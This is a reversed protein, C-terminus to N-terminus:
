NIRVDWEPSNLLDGLTKPNSQARAWKAFTVYDVAEVVIPMFGHNVGCLESCQGYFVGRRKIFVETQNLRGPIADLKVGLSPVAWSHIVDTSTVLLRIHTNIPLFLRKDVELLRLGGTPLDEENVMYSDFKVSPSIVSVSNRITEGYTLFEFLWFFCPGTSKAYERYTQLKVFPKLVKAGKLGSQIKLNYIIRNIATIKTKKIVVTLDFLGPKPKLGLMHWKLFMYYHSAGLKGMPTGLIKKKLSVMAPADIYKKPRPLAVKYYEFLNDKRYVDLEYSWYWQHGVVKVTLSPDMVEDMSYLLSFSPMAIAILIFAPAVTWVTEILPDHNFDLPSANKNENFLYLSRLLFWVVVVFVLILYMLVYNHLNIIGEMVPTAPNQFTFQWANPSDNYIFTTM